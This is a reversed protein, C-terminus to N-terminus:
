GTGAEHLVSELATRVRVFERQLEAVQTAAQGLDSRGGAEQLAACIRQMRTAGLQAASGKLGHALEEVRGADGQAVAEQLAMLHAPAEQLYLRILHPLLRSQGRELLQLTALVSRDLVADADQATAPAHAGTSAAAASEPSWREVVAALRELTVPKTLHDDMGVARSKQVDGALADATLAVIPTYRGHGAEHRRIAATAAFGDMAPMHCDMLVLAYCRQRLAEVAQQGTEVTEVVYGLSELLRVAV